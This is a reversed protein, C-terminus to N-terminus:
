VIELSPPSSPSPVSSSSEAAGEQRVCVQFYRAPCNGAVHRCGADLDNGIRHGGTAAHSSPRRAEQSAGMPLIHPLVVQPALDQLVYGREHESAHGLMARRLNIPRLNKEYSARTKLGDDIGNCPVVCPYLRGVFHPARPTFPLRDKRAVSSQDSPDAGSRAPEANHGGTRKPRRPGSGGDCPRPPTGLQALPTSRDSTEPITELATPTDRWPVTLVERGRM